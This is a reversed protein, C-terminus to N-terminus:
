LRPGSTGHLLAATLAKVEAVMWSQYHYGPTPMTEYVGVVAIHQQHALSVLSQTLTDTVQQNYVLAKVRHGTLLREELAVDEPAPDVGNMVDAQFAFPTLDDIGAAQLMDDAVPETTAVPAGPDDARLQDIAAQWGDLSADFRTVNATFYARHAPQLTSLDAGIAQAVAPMTTPKYWLHPNATTDPLGLLTQVDIVKRRADPAASEIKGMFSDYGLGNQVVLQASGVMQAVRPSAEFTHPDTNPNSMVATVAVYRGGIQGIVDAYQNEAGVAVIRPASAGAAPPGIAVGAWGAGALASVVLSAVAVRRTAAPSRGGRDGRLAEHWLAREM